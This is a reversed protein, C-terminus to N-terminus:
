VDKVLCFDLAKTLAEKDINQGIFVLKQMRDGYKPDWDKKLQEDSELQRRLEEPPMTAFWQGAGKMLFQKGSQEFLYCIKEEDKFYCMGKCRIINRPWKSVCVDCKNIDM